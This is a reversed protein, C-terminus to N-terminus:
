LSSIKLESAWPNDSFVFHFLGHYEAARCAVLVHPYESARYRGKWPEEEQLVLGGSQKYSMGELETAGWDARIKCPSLIM